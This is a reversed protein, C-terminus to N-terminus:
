RAFRRYERVTLPSRDGVEVLGDMHELWARYCVGIRHAEAV